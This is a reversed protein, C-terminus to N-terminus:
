RALNIHPASRPALDITPITEAIIVICVGIASMTVAWAFIVLSTLFRERLPKRRNAAARHPSSPNMPFSLATAMPSRSTQPPNDQARVKASGPITLLVKRTLQPDTKPLRHLQRLQSYISMVGCSLRYRGFEDGAIFTAAEAVSGLELFNRSGM